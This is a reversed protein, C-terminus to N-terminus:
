QRRELDIDPQKAMDRRQPDGHHDYLNHVQNQGFRLIHVTSSPVSIVWFYDLFGFLLVWVHELIYNLISLPVLDTGVM